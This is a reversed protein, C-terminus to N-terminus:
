SLGLVARRAPVTTTIETTLGGSGTMASATDGPEGTTAAPNIKQWEDLRSAWESDDMSAWQASKETVYEETFLGMDKVQDVRKSAIEALRAAEERKASEDKLSAVEDTASKLAVQAADLERNLRSNDDTLAATSTTLEELKAALGTAEESKNALATELAATADALAKAVLAEHTERSIMDNDSMTQTIGGETSHTNLSADSPVLGSPGSASSGGSQAAKDACFPCIDADHRAEDPRMALLEDHLQLADLSVFVAM